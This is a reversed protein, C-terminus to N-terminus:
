GGSLASGDEAQCDATPAAGTEDGVKGPSGGLGGAQLLPDCSLEGDEEVAAGQGAFLEEPQEDQQDGGGGGM